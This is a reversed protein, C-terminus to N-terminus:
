SPMSRRSVLGGMAIMATDHPPVPHLRVGRTARRPRHQAHLYGRLAGRAGRAVRLEIEANLAAQVQRDNREADSIFLSTPECSQEWTSGTPTAPLLDPYGLVFIHREPCPRSFGGDGAPHQRRGVRRNQGDAQAHRGGYADRCDDMLACIALISTFGLDNGGITFTVMDTTDSLADFQPPSSDNKATSFHETKAGSCSVDTFSGFGQDQQIRNPYNYGTSRNCEGTADPLGVGSSYSDGMAVYELTATPNCPAAAAGAVLGFVVVLAGLSMAGLSSLM